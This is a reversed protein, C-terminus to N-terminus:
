WLLVSRMDHRMRLFYKHPQKWNLTQIVAEVLAPAVEM